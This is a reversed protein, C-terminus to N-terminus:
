FSSLKLQGEASSKKEKEQPKLLSILFFIVSNGQSLHWYKKRNMPCIAITDLHDCPM